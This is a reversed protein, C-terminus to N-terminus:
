NAGEEIIVTTYTTECAGSAPPAPRTQYTCETPRFQWVHLRGANTKASPFSKNASRFTSGAARCHLLRIQSVVCGVEKTSYREGTPVRICTWKNRPTCGSSLVLAITGIALYTVAASRRWRNAAPTLGRNQTSWFGLGWRPSLLGRSAFERRRRSAGREQRGRRPSLRDHANSDWPSVGRALQKREEPATYAPEAHFLVAHGIQQILNVFSRSASGSVCREHLLILRSASSTARM